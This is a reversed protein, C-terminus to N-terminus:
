ALTQARIYGFISFSSDGIVFPWILPPEPALWDPAEKTGPGAWMKERLLERRGGTPLPSQPGDSRM